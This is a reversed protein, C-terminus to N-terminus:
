NSPYGNKTWGCIEDNGTYKEPEPYIIYEITTGDVYTVARAYDYYYTSKGEVNIKYYYGGENPDYDFVTEHDEYIISHLVQSENKAVSYKNIFRFSKIM